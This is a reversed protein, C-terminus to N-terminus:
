GWWWVREVLGLPQKIGSAGVAQGSRTAHTNTLTQASCGQHCLAGNRSHVVMDVEGGAGLWSALTPEEIEDGEEPPAWSGKQSGTGASSGSEQLLGGREPSHRQARIM